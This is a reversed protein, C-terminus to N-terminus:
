RDLNVGKELWVNAVKFLYLLVNKFLIAFEVLVLYLAYSFVFNFIIVGHTLNTDIWTVFGSFFPISTFYTNFNDMFDTLATFGTAGAQKYAVMLYFGIFFPILYLNLRFLRDIFKNDLKM